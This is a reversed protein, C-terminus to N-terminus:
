STDRDEDFMSRVHFACAKNSLVHVCQFLQSEFVNIWSGVAKKSEM